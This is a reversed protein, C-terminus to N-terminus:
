GKRTGGFPAADNDTLPDKIWFTGAKIKTMANMAWTLDSAYINTGLGYESRAALAIAEEADGVVQISAIPGFVEECVVASALTVDTVVTPAYFYGPGAEPVLRAGERRRARGAGCTKWRRWRGRRCWRGWTSTWM